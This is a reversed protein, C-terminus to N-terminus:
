LLQNLARKSIDLPSQNKIIPLHEIKNTEALVKLQDQAAPRYIDLSVLM